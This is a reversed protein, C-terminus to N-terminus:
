YFYENPVLTQLTNWYSGNSSTIKNWVYSHNIANTGRGLPRRTKRYSDPTYPTHTKFTKIKLQFHLFIFHIKTMQHETIEPFPLLATCVAFFFVHASNIYITGYSLASNLLPESPEFLPFKWRSPRSSEPQGATTSSLGISVCSVLWRLSIGSIEYSRQLAVSFMQIPSANRGKSAERNLLFFYRTCRMEM